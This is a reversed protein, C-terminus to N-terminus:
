ALVRPLGDLMIADRGDMYVWKSSVVSDVGRDTWDYQTFYEGTDYLIVAMTGLQDNTVRLLKVSDAIQKEAIINCEFVEGNQYDAINIKNM